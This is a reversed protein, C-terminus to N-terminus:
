KKEYLADGWIGGAWTTNIRVLNYASLFEDIETVKACDKYTEDQNVETVIYEIHNLTNVSGKLVELEYGQVDINMMNYQSCDIGDEQVLDDLRKVDVVETKDFVINPHIELHKKPQLISSSAGTYYPIPPNFESVHISTQGNFNGLACNYTKGFNGVNQILIRYIHKLPEFFIAHQINLYKYLNVEEGIFAGIHFVGKIKNQLHNINLLM